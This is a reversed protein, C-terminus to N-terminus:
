KVRLEAVAGGALEVAGLAPDTLSVKGQEVKIEDARYVSGDAATVTYRPPKAPTAVDRYVVALVSEGGKITFVRPGFVLNTMSVRYSVERIEGEAFDGSALLVGSAGAPVNQSVEAPIPRYVLRAVEAQPITQRSKVGDRSYHVQGDKVSSVDCALFSGNTFLIGAAAEAMAPAGPTLEVHDFTAVAPTELSRSMACLGVFVQEPLTVHDNSLLDWAKGDPSTFTRLRAGHRQLKLWINKPAAPPAKPDAIGLVENIPRETNLPKMYSNQKKSSVVAQAGVLVADFIGVAGLRDKVVIGALPGVFADHPALSVVRAVLTFDGKVPQHVLHCGDDNDPIQGGAKKITFAGDAYEASGFPQDTRRTEFVTQDGWPAPLARGPTGPGAVAVYSPGSVGSVGADTTAKATIRHYGAPPDKWEVTFPPKDASGIVTKGAFYEVRVIRGAEVATEATFTVSKPARYYSGDPPGTITAVPPEPAGPPPSIAGAQTWITSAGAGRGNLMSRFGERGSAVEFVIDVPKGAELAIPDTTAGNTKAPGDVLVKGGVVLRTHGHSGYGFTYDGSKPPTYRVSYRVACSPPVAPDPPESAPWYTEMSSVYRALLRKKFDGNEFYEALIRRGKAEKLREKDRERKSREAVVPDDAAAPAAAAAAPEAGFTAREIKDLPIERAPAGKPTVTIKDGDLKVNGSITQGDRLTVSGARALPPFLAVLILLVLRYTM